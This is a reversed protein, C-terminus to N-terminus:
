YRIQLGINFMRPQGIFIEADDADNDGDFGNFRSNDVADQVYMEDLLNTVNAFLRVDGGRFGPLVSTLNYSGHFDFVTYGPAQWSQVPTATQTTRSFPDFESYHNGYTRGVIQLSSGPVPFLSVAYSLASQPQDGVRLGEIYFQYTQTDGSGEDPRYTGTVNELYKWNGMSAAFDVRVLSSPQWAGELEVGMHRADLGLLNVLGDQGAGDINRIFLNRTRDRWTTHYANLNASLGRELSRYQLGGEFSLFSENTPTENVVQAGVDIVGDVIPVKSVLGLNTYTSWEDNLNYVAGGKLQYGAINGSTLFLPLGNAGPVFFNESDYNIQSIGFVGFISGKQSTKEAQAYGGLWDVKTQDWYDIKTGYTAQTPGTFQNRTNLWYAGGLLNRVDRYHDIEATRWDVGVEATLGNAFDKRLKSIAGITWQSNVSSRLIGRSGRANARNRAITADWDPSRQTFGYDWALSGLTGSGGGQGGSFYGVTSLTLGNGFYSYWNLNLQPKHFYNEREGMFGALERRNFGSTPGVSAYHPENYSSSVPGLNPSWFDYGSQPTAEPFKNLAGADYGELSRAFEHSFTAANLKYLNQGHAQPAGVAYFEVRNKPNVQFSSAVYYAWADTYTGAFMGDGTKRVGSATMAFNGIEGTNAVATTKLFAANGFEQKITLGADNSAPDTIVNLTGGIAPTALNIASLGRQLQISTAADALGDWNSWYVWGNEMDNVPVGNIMVATNRQSFGRVNIRADGAGGGQQTSYVSPTVNLALPLDRSALQNQIQVKDIDSFAVPTRRETARSAFVDLGAISVAESALEFDVTVTEGATLTVNRTVSQYGIIQATVTYRGARVNAITYRGDSGALAGFQAGSSSETVVVQAGALTQGESTVRGTITGATQAEAASGGFALLAALVAPLCLKKM